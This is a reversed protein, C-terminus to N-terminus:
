RIAKLLRAALLFGLKQLIDGSGWTGIEQGQRVQGQVVSVKPVGKSFLNLSEM